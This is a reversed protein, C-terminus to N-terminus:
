QQGGNVLVPLFLMQQPVKVMEVGLSAPSLSPPTGPFKKALADVLGNAFRLAGSGPPNPRRLADVEAPTLWIPPQILEGINSPTSGQTGPLYRLSVGEDERGFVLGESPENLEIAVPVEPFIGIMVSPSIRDIRLPM